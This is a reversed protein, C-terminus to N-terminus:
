ASAQKGHQIQQVFATLLQPEFDENSQRIIEATLTRFREKRRDIPPAILVAQHEIPRGERYGVAKILDRLKIDVWSKSGVGYYVLM